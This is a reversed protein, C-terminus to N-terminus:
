AARLVANVYGNAWASLARRHWGWDGRVWRSGLPVAADTATLVAVMTPIAEAPHSGDVDLQVV